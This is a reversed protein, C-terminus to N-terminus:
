GAGRVFMQEFGPESGDVTGGFVCKSSTPYLTKLPSAIVHKTYVLRIRRRRTSRTYSIEIRDNHNRLRFCILINILGVWSFVPYFQFFKLVLLYMVSLRFRYIRHWEVYHFILVLPNSTTTEFRELRKVRTVAISSVFFM